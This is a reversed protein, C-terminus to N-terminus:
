LSTVTYVIETGFTGAPTRPTVTLNYDAHFSDSKGREDSLYLTTANGPVIATASPAGLTGRAADHTEVQFQDSPISAGDSNTLPQRVLQTVQYPRALNSFVNLAVNVSRHTTDGASPQEIVGFAIDQGTQPTVSLELRPVITASVKVTKSDTEACASPITYLLGMLAAIGACSWRMRGM